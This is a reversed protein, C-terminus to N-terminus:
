ATRWNQLVPEYETETLLDNYEAEIEEPTQEPPNFCRGGLEMMEVVYALPDMADWFRSRPFSLLQAELAALVGPAANHKVHGMRYYPILAGVREEKHMGGRAKLEVLEYVVGAKQMFDRFPQLIFENIGTVELGIIHSNYVQTLRAVEAYLEDPYMRRMTLDRVYITNELSDIGVVVVGSYDSGSTVTKAPDVIVVTEMHRLRKKFETDEENYYKFYSRRFAATDTSIIQCMMERAFHDPNGRDRAEQVLSKVKETTVYNPFNSEYAQDALPIILHKFTADETLRALLSAEHLLTGVVVIEFTPDSLDCTDLLATFFWDYLQRRLEENLVEKDDELDDVMILDPRYDKYILGRVMQGAGLPTVKTYGNAVWAEKSFDDEKTKIEGFLKTVLPNGVLAQKLNESQQTALTNNKSVYIINRKHRFLIKRAPFAYGVCSTKGVGRPAMILKRQLESDILSFIQDHPVDFPRRFRSPFFLQATAKTSKSATALLSVLEPDEKLFQGASKQKM